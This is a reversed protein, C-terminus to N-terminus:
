FIFEFQKGHKKKELSNKGIIFTLLIFSFYFYFNYVFKKVQGDIGM